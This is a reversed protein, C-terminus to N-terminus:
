LKVQFVLFNGNFYHKIHFCSFKKINGFVLNMRDANLRDDEDYHSPLALNLTDDSIKPYKNPNLINGEAKVETMIRFRLKVSANKVNRVKSFGEQESFSKEIIDKTKKDIELNNQKLREELVQIFSSAILDRVKVTEFFSGHVLAIKMKGRKRGRVLYFVDREVISFVDDGAATMQKYIDSKKSKVIKNISKKGTPITSNFSSVTYSKSDKLEILEGGRFLEDTKGVRIALDPFQGSRKCSLMEKDFPFDDLKELSSFLSRKECLDKFFHFISFTM